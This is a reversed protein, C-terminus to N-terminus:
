LGGPMEKIVPVVDDINDSTVELRDEGRRMKLVFSPGRSDLLTKIIQLFV